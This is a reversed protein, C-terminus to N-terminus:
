HNLLGLVAPAVSIIKEMAKGGAVQSKSCLDADPCVFLYVNLVLSIVLLFKGLNFIAGGIRDLPGVKLAHILSKLMRSVLIVGYYAVFYLVAYVLITFGYRPLPSAESGLEPNALHVAAPGFLRCVVIGVVIAALAGLQAVLGKSYGWLAALALIGFVILDLYAM